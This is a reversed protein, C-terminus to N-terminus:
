SSFGVCWTRREGCAGCWLRRRADTVMCEGGLKRCAELVTWTVSHGCTHCTITLPGRLRGIREVQPAV